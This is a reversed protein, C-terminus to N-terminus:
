VQECNIQFNTAQPYMQILDGAGAGFANVVGLMGAFCVPPPFSSIYTTRLVDMLHKVNDFKVVHMGLNTICSLFSGAGICSAVLLNQYASGSKKLSLLESILSYYSGFIFDFDINVLENRQCFAAVTPLALCSGMCLPIKSFENSMLSGPGHFDYSIWSVLLDKIKLITDYAGFRYLAIVSNGLGLVLGAVGWGDEELDYLNGLSETSQQSPPFSVNLNKLSDTAAPCLKCIMLSLTSVIDQLLSIETIRTNHGELDSGNGIETTNLLNQCAFGLAMGCAGKVLHSKSECLVTLYLGDTKTRNPIIKPKDWYPQRVYHGTRPLGLKSTLGSACRRWPEKFLNSSGGGSTYRREKAEVKDSSRVEAEGSEGGGSSRMSRQRRRREVLLRRAGEDERAGVGWNKDEGRTRAIYVHILTSIDPNLDTGFLDPGAM